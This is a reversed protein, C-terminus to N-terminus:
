VFEPFSLTLKSTDAVLIKVPRAAFAIKAVGLLRFIRQAPWVQKPCIELPVPTRHTHIKFGNDISFIEMFQQIDHASHFTTGVDFVTEIEAEM